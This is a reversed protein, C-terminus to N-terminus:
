LHFSCHCMCGPMHTAGVGSKRRPQGATCHQDIPVPVRVAPMAAARVESAAAWLGAAAPLRQSPLLTFRARGLGAAGGAPLLALLPLPARLQPRLRAAAPCPGAAAALRLCPRLLSLIQRLVPVWVQLRNGGHVAPVRHHRAPAASDAHERGSAEAGVQMGMPAPATASAM